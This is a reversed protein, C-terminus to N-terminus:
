QRFAVSMASAAPVMVVLPCWAALAPSILYKMGLAHSVTVVAFFGAVV